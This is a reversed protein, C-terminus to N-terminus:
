GSPLLAGYNVKDTGFLAQGPSSHFNDLRNLSRSNMRCYDNLGSNMRRYENCAIVERTLVLDFVFGFVGLLYLKFLINYLVKFELTQLINNRRLM